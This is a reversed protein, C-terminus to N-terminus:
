QQVGRPAYPTNFHCSELRVFDGSIGLVETDVGPEDLNERIAPVTRDINIVCKPVHVVFVADTDGIATPLNGLSPEDRTQKFESGFAGGLRSTGNFQANRDTLDVTPEELFGNEAHPLAEGDPADRIDTGFDPKFKRGM